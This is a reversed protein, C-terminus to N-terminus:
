RGDPGTVRELFGLVTEWTAEVPGRARGEVLMSSGHVGDNAVFTEFGLDALRELQRRTRPTRMEDEPRLVLTPITVNAAFLDPACAEMPGGSAPSFALVALLDDPHKAALQIVLAASYSSGWAVIGNWRGATQAYRLAGELDPYVACYGPDGGRRRAVTRNIGGFRGGGSRLDVVLVSYGADLLRPVIEAYEGRGSAGAQHFLMVLPAEGSGSALQLDAFVTAGDAAAFRVARPAAAQAAGMGTDGALVLAAVVIPVCRAWVSGVTM